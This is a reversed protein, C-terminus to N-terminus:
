LLPKVLFFLWRRWRPQRTRATEAAADLRSWASEREEATLTHQSFKAKRGLMELVEDEAGGMDAARRYRCYANIVSRNIDTSGQAARRPLFSLFYIGCLIAAALLLRGAHSEATGSPDDAEEAGDQDGAAPDGAQESDDPATEEPTEPTEDPATGEGSPDQAEPAGSLEVGSSGGTYGPTMEVPHWGFGDIYVEVWAHADSDMVTGRGQSNLQVTYGTVYRAPIGQARLMLAGATAFHVCYGRGETLFHQLFDGGPEMAPTHPDYVAISALLEATRSAADLITEFREPVSMDDTLEVTGGFDELTVANEYAVRFQALSQELSEREEGEAGDLSSELSEIILLLREQGLLNEVRNRTYSDLDLYAPVAEQRYVREQEAAAGELPAFVERPDSPMYGVEYEESGPILIDDWEGGGPLRLWGAEDTSGYGAALQYPYFYVGRFSVDRISMTYEEPRGAAEYPFLMPSIGPKAGVTEWADGTYVGLAGGRLYIRGAAPQSSRVTLVRRGAYRRPGAAQLNERRGPAGGPGGAEGTLGGDLTLEGGGEMPITFDIGLEEFAANLEGIDFFREAQRTVRRLLGDRADSAWQPHTYSDMPLAMVLALVMLSMGALHFLQARALSGPDKRGFLATLLMTGWGTFIALVAGWAPLVGMLIAPLILATSLLAALYWRKARATIWANVWALAASLLLLVALPKGEVTKSQPFPLGTLVPLLNMKQGLWKLLPLADERLLWLGWAIGAAALLAWWPHSQRHLLVSVASSFVCCALIAGTDTVVSYGSLFSLACGATLLATILFDGALLLLKGEAHVDDLKGM